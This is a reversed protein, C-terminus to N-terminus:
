GTLWLHRGPLGRPSNAGAPGRLGSNLAVPRWPGGRGGPWRHAPPARGDGDVIKGRWRDYVVLRARGLDRDREEQRRCHAAVARIRHRSWVLIPEAPRDGRLLQLEYRPQWVHWHPTM